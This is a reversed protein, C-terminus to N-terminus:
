LSQPYNDIWPFAQEYSFCFSFLFSDERGDAIVQLGVPLGEKTFGCPLNAAPHGAINFPFLFSAFLKYPDVKKDNIKSTIKGIPFPSVPSTPTILLDYKHFLEALFRRFIVKYQLGLAYEKGSIHFCLDMINKVGETLLPKAFAPILSLPISFDSFIINKFQDTYEEWSFPINIKEVVHGLKELQGLRKEVISRIEPDVPVCGLDPSWAIRLHKLDQTASQTFDISPLWCNPDKYCKKTIVNMLLASDMVTRTIPGTRCSNLTSAEEDLILPVRGFSPMFGFLGCFSSPLRISGAADNALAIPGLAAAVAAAGGGSSGGPSYKLNWPNKCPNTLRNETAYGMGFEPVNTKGLIIGGHEKIRAVSLSDQLKIENQTLLSGNTTPYGKINLLLDKVSVPIGLLDGDTNGQLVRFDVQKALTMAEDYLISLYTNLKPNLREIRKLFVEAVETAQIEKTKILKSIQYGSLYVIDKEKIM